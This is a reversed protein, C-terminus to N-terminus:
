RQEEVLRSLLNVAEAIVAREDADFHEALGAALWGDRQARDHALTEEGADTLAILVRRGDAPDPGRAVLGAEELDAVTQAMSQPRVREAAALEGISQTGCRDLRGLVFGQTMPLRNEARLRRILQGILVHLDSALRTRSQPVPSM